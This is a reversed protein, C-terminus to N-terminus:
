FVAFVSFLEPINNHRPSSIVLSYAVITILKHNLPKSAQGSRWHSQDYCLLCEGFYKLHEDPKRLKVTLIKLFSIQFSSKKVSFKVKRVNPQKSDFNIILKSLLCGFICLTFNNGDLYKFIGPLLSSSNKISAQM